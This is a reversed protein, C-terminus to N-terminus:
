FQIRLGITASMKLYSPHQPSRTFIDGESCEKAIIHHHSGAAQKDLSKVSALTFTLLTNLKTGLETIRSLREQCFLLFPFAAFCYLSVDTVTGWSKRAKQLLCRCFPGSPTKGSFYPTVLESSLLKLVESFSDLLQIHAVLKHSHM